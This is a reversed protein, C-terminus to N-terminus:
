RANMILLFTAIGLFYFLFYRNLANVSDLTSFAFALSYYYHLATACLLATMGVAKTLGKINLGPMAQGIEPL